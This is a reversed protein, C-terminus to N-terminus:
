KNNLLIDILDQSSINKNKVLLDLLKYKTSSDSNKYFERGEVSFGYLFHAKNLRTNENAIIYNKM